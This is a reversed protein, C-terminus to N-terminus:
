PACLDADNAPTSIYRLRQNNFDAFFYSGMGTLLIGKPASMKAKLPDGGDGSFGALSTGAVTQIIGDTGVRRIWNNNTDAIWVAGNEDMAASQPQNLRASTAL